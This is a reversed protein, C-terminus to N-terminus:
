DAKKRDSLLSAIVIGVPLSLYGVGFPMPDVWHEVLLFTVVGYLALLRCLAAFGRLASKKARVDKDDALVRGVSRALLELTLTALGGGTLASIGARVGFRWAVLGAIVIAVSGVTLVAVLLRDNVPKTQGTTM